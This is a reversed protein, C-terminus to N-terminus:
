TSGKLRRYPALKIAEDMDNQRRNHGWAHRRKGCDIRWTAVCHSEMCARTNRQVKKKKKRLGTRVFNQAPAGGWRHVLATGAPTIAGRALPPVGGRHGRLTGKANGAPHIQSVRSGVAAKCRSAWLIRGLVSKCGLGNGAPGHGAKPAIPSPCTSASPLLCWPMYGEKHSTNSFPHPPHTHLGVSALRDAENNGDVTVHSPM